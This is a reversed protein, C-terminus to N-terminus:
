KEVKETSLVETEIGVKRFENLILDAALEDACAFHSVTDDKEYVSVFHRVFPRSNITYERSYHQVKTIANIEGVRVYKQMFVVYYSQGISMFGKILDHYTAMMFDTNVYFEDFGRKRIELKLNMSSYFVLDSKRAAFISIAMILTAAIFAWWFPIHFHEYENFKLIFVFPLLLSFLGIVIYMTMFYQRRYNDCVEFMDKGRRKKHIKAERLESTSDGTKEDRIGPKVHDLYTRYIAYIGLVDMFVSLVIAAVFVETQLKGLLALVTVSVIDFVILVIWLIMTIYAKRNKNQEEM